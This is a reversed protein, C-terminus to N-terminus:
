AVPSPPETVSIVSVWKFDKEATEFLSWFDDPNTDEYIL